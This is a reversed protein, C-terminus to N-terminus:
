VSTYPPDNILTLVPNEVDAYQKKLYVAQQGYATITGDSNVDINSGRLFGPLWTHKKVSAHGSMLTRGYDASQNSMDPHLLNVSRSNTKPGIKESTLRSLDVSFVYIPHKIASSGVVKDTTRFDSPLTM